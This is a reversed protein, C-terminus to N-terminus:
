AAPEARIARVRWLVARQGDAGRELQPSPDTAKMVGVARSHEVFHLPVHPLAHSSPQPLFVGLGFRSIPVGVAIFAEVIVVAQEVEWSKL